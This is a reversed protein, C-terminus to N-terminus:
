TYVKIKKNMRKALSITHRTGPSSGSVFALIHDSLKVVEENRIFQAVPSGYRAYDPVLKIFPIRYKIALEEAFSDAGDAGGSVITIEKHTDITSPFNLAVYDFFENEIRYYDDWARSGVIAIYIM